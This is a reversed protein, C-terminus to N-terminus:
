KLETGWPKRVASYNDLARMIVAAQSEPAVTSTLTVNLYPESEWVWVETLSKITASHFNFFVTTNGGGALAPWCPEWVTDTILDGTSCNQWSHPTPTPLSMSVVSTELSDHCVFMPVLSHNNIESSLAQNSYSYGSHSPSSFKLFLLLLFQHNCSCPSSQLIFCM